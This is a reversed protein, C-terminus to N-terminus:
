CAFVLWVGLSSGEGCCGVGIGVYTFLAFVAFYVFVFVYRNFNLGEEPCISLDFSVLIM